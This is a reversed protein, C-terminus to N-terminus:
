VSKGVKKFIGDLADILADVERKKVILPPLFRLIREMTCNILFGKEMCATVIDTGNISLEMGLILGKGRVERIFPYRGKLDDLREKFYAGMEECNELVGGHLLANMVATGAAMSLPNGGFTSAHSGPSLTDKLREGALM